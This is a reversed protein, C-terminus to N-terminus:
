APEGSVRVRNADVLRGSAIECDNIAYQNADPQKYGALHGVTTTAHITGKNICHDFVELTNGNNWGSIGGAYLCKYNGEQGEILGVNGENICNIYKLTYANSFGTFGGLAPGQGDTDTYVSTVLGTNLCDTFTVTNGKAGGSNFYGVLGGAYIPKPATSACGLTTITGNNTCNKFEGEVISSGFQGVIGGISNVGTVSANNTVNEFIIKGLISTAQGVIGGTQNRGTNYISCEEDNSCNTIKTVKTADTCLAWSVLFGTSGNAIIHCNYAHVNEMEGEFESAALANDGGSANIHNCNIFSLNKINGGYCFGILEKNGGVVNFNLISHGNGDFTGEFNSQYTIRHQQDEEYYSAIPAWNESELSMDYDKNLTITLGNFTAPSQGPAKNSLEAIETLTNFYSVEQGESNTVKFTYTPAVETESYIATKETDFKTQDAETLDIALYGQDILEQKIEEKISQNDNYYIADRTTGTQKFNTLKVGTEKVYTLEINATSLPIEIEGEYTSCVLATGNEVYKDNTLVNLEGMQGYHTVLDGDEGDGNWASIDINTKLSCTNIIIDKAVQEDEMNEYFYHINRVDENEGADFGAIFSYDVKTLANTTPSKKLYQSYQCYSDFNNEDVMKWLQWPKTNEVYGESKYIYAGTISSIIAFRNQTQDWVYEAGTTEVALNEVDIGNAKELALVDKMTKKVENNALIKNIRNLNTLDTPDTVDKVWGQPLGAATLMNQLKAKNEDSFKGYIVSGKEAWGNFANAKFTVFDMDKDDLSSFDITTIDSCCDFAYQGVYRLDKPFVINKITKSKFENKFASDVINRVTDPISLTDYASLDVKEELGYLTQGSIKLYNTPMSKYTSKSCSTLTTVIPTVVSIASVTALASFLKIKKM